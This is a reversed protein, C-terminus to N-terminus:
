PLGGQRLESGAYFEEDGTFCSTPLGTCDCASHRESGRALLCRGHVGDHYGEHHGCPCMKPANNPYCWSPVYPADDPTGPNSDSIPGPSV